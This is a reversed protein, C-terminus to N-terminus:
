GADGKLGQVGGNGTLILHSLSHAWCLAQRVAPPQHTAAFRSFLHVRLEPLPAAVGVKVQAEAQM